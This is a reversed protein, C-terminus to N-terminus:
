GMSLMSARTYSCVQQGVTVSRMLISVYVFPSAAYTFYVWRPPGSAGEKESLYDPDFYMLTAFNLLVLCFGSLTIQLFDRAFNFSSPDVGRSFAYFARHKTSDVDALSHGALDLVSEPCTKIAAVKLSPVKLKLVM